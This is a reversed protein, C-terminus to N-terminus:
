LRKNLDDIQADLKKIGSVAANYKTRLGNMKKKWYDLNKKNTESPDRKYTETASLVTSRVSDLEKKTNKATSSLMYKDYMLSDRKNKTASKSQTYSNSSAESAARANEAQARAINKSNTKRVGAAEGTNYGQDYGDQKGARYGTKFGKRVGSNTLYEDHMEQIKRANQRNKINYESKAMRAQENSSMTSARDTGRKRKAAAAMRQAREYDDQRTSAAANRAQENSAMANARAKSAARRKADAMGEQIKRCNYAQENQRAKALRAQENSSMTSARDTGRKRKAAAAMRQQRAYNEANQRANALRAQENSAMSNARDELGKRYRYDSKQNNLNYRDQAAANRAIENIANAKSRNMAATRQRAARAEADLGAGRRHSGTQGEGVRKPRGSTGVMSSDSNYKKWKDKHQQYYRRNYEREMQKQKATTGWSHSLSLYPNKAM